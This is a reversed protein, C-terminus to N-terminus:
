GVGLAARTFPCSAGGRELLQRLRELDAAEDIDFSAPLIELEIGLGAARELTQEFTANSSWPIGEFLGPAPAGLGIAYYGGDACPGIAGRGAELARFAQELVEPGLHPVDSGLALVHRHGREFASQFGHILRVTLDGEPQAVLPAAPALQRFWEVAEAPAFYVVLQSRVRGCSGLTDRLFAEYLRAAQEDGVSRALRTKVGGPRPEKAFLLICRPEM